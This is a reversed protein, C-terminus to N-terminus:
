HHNPASRAAIAIKADSGGRELGTRHRGATGRNQLRQPTPTDALVRGGGRWPGRLTKTKKVMGEKREKETKLPGLISTKRKKM